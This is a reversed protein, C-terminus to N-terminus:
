LASPNPIRGDNLFRKRDGFVVIRLKQAATNFVLLASPSPDPSAPTPPPPLQSACWHARLWRLMVHVCPAPQAPPPPPPPRHHRILTLTLEAATSGFPPLFTADLTSPASLAAPPLLLYTTYSIIYDLGLIRRLVRDRVVPQQLENVQRGEGAEVHIIAGVHRQRSHHLQLALRGRCV